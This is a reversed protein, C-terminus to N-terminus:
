YKSARRGRIPFSIKSVLVIFVSTGGLILLATSLGVMVILLIPDM